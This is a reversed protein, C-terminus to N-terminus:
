EIIMKKLKWEDHLKEVEIQVDGNKESGFVTFYFNAKQNSVSGTMLHGIGNIEGYENRFKVDEKLLIEAKKFGDSQSLLIKGAISGVILLYCWFAWFELMFNNFIFAIAADASSKYDDPSYPHLIPLKIRKPLWILIGLTYVVPAIILGHYLYDVENFEGVLGIVFIL